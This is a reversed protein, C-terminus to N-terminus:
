INDYWASRFLNITISFFLTQNKEVIEELELEARQLESVEVQDMKEKSTIHLYNKLVTDNSHSKYDENESVSYRNANKLLLNRKKHSKNIASLSPNSGGSPRGEVTKLVAAKSREAM